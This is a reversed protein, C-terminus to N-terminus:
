YEVDSNEEDRTIPEMVQRVITEMKRQEMEHFIKDENNNVAVQAEKTRKRLNPSLKLSHIHGKSDGVLM